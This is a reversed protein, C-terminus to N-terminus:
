HIWPGWFGDWLKEAASCAQQLQPKGRKPSFVNRQASAVQQKMAALRAPESHALDNHETPDVDLRFLCGTKCGFEFTTQYSTTTSQALLIDACYAPAARRM